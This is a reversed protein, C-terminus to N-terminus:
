KTELKTIKQDDGTIKLDDLLQGFQRGGILECDIFFRNNNEDTVTIEYQKDMGDTTTRAHFSSKDIDFERVKRGKKYILKNDKVILTIMNGFVVLILFLIYIGVGVLISQTMDLWFGAIFWALAGSFLGLVANWIVRVTSTKYVKEM